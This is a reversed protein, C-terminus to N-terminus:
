NFAHRKSTGPPGTTVFGDSLAPVGTQDWAQSSGVRGAAVLGTPGLEQAQAGSGTCGLEQLRRGLARARCSLCRYPVWAQLWLAARVGPALFASM